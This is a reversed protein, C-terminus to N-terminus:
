YAEGGGDRFIQVMQDLLGDVHALMQLLVTLVGVGLKAQNQDLRANVTQTTIVFTRKSSSNDRKREDRAHEVAEKREKREEKREEKRVRRTSRRTEKKETSTERRNESKRGKKERKKKKANAPVRARGGVQLYWDEM